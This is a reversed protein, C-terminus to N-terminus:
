YPLRNWIAIPNWVADAEALSQFMDPHEIYFSLLYNGFREQYREPDAIKGGLPEHSRHDKRVGPRRQVSRYINTVLIAMFEEYNGIEPENLIPAPHTRGAMIRFAHVLEHLLREDPPTGPQSACPANANYNVVCDIGKGTGVGQVKGTRDTLPHGNLTAAEKAQHGPSATRAFGNCAGRQAAMTATFPTITVTRPYALYIQKIVSFGANRDNNIQDLVREIEAVYKNGDLTGLSSGDITINHCMSYQKKGM